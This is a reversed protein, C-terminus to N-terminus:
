IYVFLVILINSLILQAIENSWGTKCDNVELIIICKSSHLYHTTLEWFEFFFFFLRLHHWKIELLSLCVYMRMQSEFNKIKIFWITPRGSDGGCFSFHRQMKYDMFYDFLVNTWWKLSFWCNFIRFENEWTEFWPWGKFSEQWDFCGCRVIFYTKPAVAM